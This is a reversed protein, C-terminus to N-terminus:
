TNWRNIFRSATHGFQQNMGGYGRNFIGSTDGSLLSAGAFSGIAREFNGMDAYSDISIISTSM